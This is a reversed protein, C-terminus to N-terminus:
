PGTSHKLNQFIADSELWNKLPDLSSFISRRIQFILKDLEAAIKLGFTPNILILTNQIWPKKYKSELTIRTM